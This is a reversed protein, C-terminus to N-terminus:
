TRKEMVFVQNLGFLFTKYKKLYFYKRTLCNMQDLDFYSKHEKDIDKAYAKLFVSENQKPTTIILKGNQKLVRAIEKIFSEKPDLHEIVALLTVYDFYDNPFNIKDNVEDGFLKDLGLREKCNSRKLFYGDGCGIDLHREAPEMYKGAYIARLWRTIPFIMRGLPERADAYKFRSAAIDPMKGDTIKLM